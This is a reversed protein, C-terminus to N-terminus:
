VFHKKIYKIIELPTMFDNLPINFGMKKLNHQIHTSCVRMTGKKNLKYNIKNLWKKPIIKELLEWGFILRNYGYKKGIQGIADEIGFQIQQPTLKLKILEITKQKLFYSDTTYYQNGHKAICVNRYQGGHFGQESLKFVCTSKNRKVEYAIAVHQPAKEGRKERTFFPIIKATWKQGYFALVTGDQINDFIEKFNNPKM